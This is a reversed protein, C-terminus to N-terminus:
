KRDAYEEPTYWENQKRGQTAKLNSGIGHFTCFGSYSPKELERDLSEIYENRDAKMATKYRSSKNRAGEGLVDDLHVMKTCKGKGKGKTALEGKAQM